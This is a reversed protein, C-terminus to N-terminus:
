VLSSVHPLLDSAVLSVSHHQLLTAAPELISLMALPDQMKVQVSSLPPLFSSTSWTPRFSHTLQNLIHTPPFVHVHHAMKDSFKVALLM